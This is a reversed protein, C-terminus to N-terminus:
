SEMKKKPLVAEKFLYFVPYLCFLLTYGLTYIADVRQDIREMLILSYYLYGGVFITYCALIKAYKVDVFYFFLMSIIIGINMRDMSGRLLLVDVFLLLFFLSLAIINLKKILFTYSWLITLSLVSITKILRWNEPSLEMIIVWISGHEPIVEGGVNDVARLKMMDFVEPIYPIFWIFAFISTLVLYYIGKKMEQKKISFINKPKDIILFLCIPIIFVGVAKFAISCGLIIASLIWRKDIAFLIALLMLLTQLGKDEPYISGWLLLSPSLAGIGIILMLSFISPRLQWFLILILAMFTSLIADIITYFMRYGKSNGNTVLDMLGFYLLSLPLNGSVYFDWREQTECVWGTYALSDLRLQNRLEVNDEFDYPNIGHTILQGGDRLINLDITENMQPTNYVFFLRVLLATVFTLSLLYRKKSFLKEFLSNIIRM